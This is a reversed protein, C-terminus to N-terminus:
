FYLFLAACPLCCVLSIVAVVVLSFSLSVGGLGAFGMVGLLALYRYLRRRKQEPTLPPKKKKKPKGPRTARPGPEWADRSPRRARRVPRELWEDDGPESWQPGSGSPGRPPGSMGSGADRRRGPPRTFREDDGDRPRQPYRRGLNARSDGSRRPPREDFRPPLSPSDRREDHFPGSWSEDPPAGRVRLRDM